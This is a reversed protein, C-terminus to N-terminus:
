SSILDSFTLTVEELGLVSQIENEAYVLDSYGPSNLVWSGLILLGLLESDGPLKKDSLNVAQVNYLFDLISGTKQDNNSKLSVCLVYSDKEIRLTRLNRITEIPISREKYLLSSLIPIRTSYRLKLGSSNALIETKKFLVFITLVTLIGLFLLSFPVFFILFILNEPDELFSHLITFWGGFFLIPVISLIFKKGFSKPELIDIRTGGDVFNTKIFSSTEGKKPDQKQSIPSSTPNTLGSGSRDFIPFPFKTKFFDLGKKLSEKDQFTEILICSGDQHLLYLDWYRWNGSSVTSGSNSSSSRETRQLIMYSIFESLSFETDPQGTERISLISTESLFEITKILHSVKRYNRITFFFLFSITATFFLAFGPLVKDEGTLLLVGFFLSAITGFVVFFLIGVILICGSSYPNKVDKRLNGNELIWSDLGMIFLGSYLYSM